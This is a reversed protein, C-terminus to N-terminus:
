PASQRRLEVRIPEALESWYEPQMLALPADISVPHWAAGTAYVGDVPPEHEPTITGSGTLQALFCTYGREEPVPVEAIIRVELGTEEHVERVAAAEASEDRESGGGPPLWYSVGDRADRHRVLAIQGQHIVLVRVHTFPTM